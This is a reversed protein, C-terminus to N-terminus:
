LPMRVADLYIDGYNKRTRRDHERLLHLVCDYSRYCDHLLVALKLLQEVSLAELRTLDRVYIADAWVLQSHGVYPDVGFLLPQIDRTVLPDFRHLMYGQSRLFLDVDSFLPQGVYMPMFEVETHIMLANALREPANRFVMLEGGQIDIKLFDMGATEPMDDLRVTDLEVERVVKAWDSFGYFLSLVEPNPELLSTMGPLVCLRLTHRGGDGVAHPLYTEHPGKRRELEALAELNPEFGVVDAHGAALLGSYPAAEDIPNAGVDVCKLRTTLSLLDHLARVPVAPNREVLISDSM